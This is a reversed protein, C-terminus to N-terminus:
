QRHRYFCFFLGNLSIILTDRLPRNVRLERGGRNVRYIRRSSCTMKKRGTTADLELRGKLPRLSGVFCTDDDGAYAFFHRGVSRFAMKLYSFRQLQPIRIARGHCTPLLPGMESTITM